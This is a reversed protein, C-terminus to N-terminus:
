VARWTLEVQFCYGVSAVASLDMRELLERRFCKFGGTLDHFPLGLILRAYLNGGRSLLQRHLGWGEVGGGPMYRCGLALDADGIADLFDPLYRPQHSFDADMEFIFRHDRALAWAFGHLYARGLGRPGDRHVVHVRSDAAALGDALAGTGDPSRDDVILVEARPLAALIAPVIGTINEAENYTPVIVLAREGARSAPDTSMGAVIAGM